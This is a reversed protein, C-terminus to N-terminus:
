QFLIDLPIKNFYQIRVIEIKRKQMLINAFYFYVIHMPFNLLNSLITQM